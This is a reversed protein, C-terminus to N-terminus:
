CGQITGDLCQSPTYSILQMEETRLYCDTNSVVFGSCTPDQEWYNATFNRTPVSQISTMNGSSNFDPIYLWLVEQNLSDSEVGRAAGIYQRLIENWGNATIWNGYNCQFTGNVKNCDSRGYWFVQRLGYYQSTDTESYTLIPLVMLM